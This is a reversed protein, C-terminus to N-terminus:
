NNVLRQNNNSVQTPVQAGTKWDNNYEKRNMRYIHISIFIFEGRAAPCIQTKGQEFVHWCYNSLSCLTNNMWERWRGLNGRGCQPKLHAITRDGAWKESGRAALDLDIEWISMSIQQNFRLTNLLLVSLTLQPPFFDSQLRTTRCWFSRHKALLTLVSNSAHPNDELIRQARHQCTVESIDSSPITYVYIFLCELIVVLLSILDTQHLSLRETM